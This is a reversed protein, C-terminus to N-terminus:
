DNKIENMRKIAEPEGKEVAKKLYKMGEEQKGQSILFEAYHLELLDVPVTEAEFALQFNSNAKDIENKALHYLAFNRYTYANDNNEAEMANHLQRKGEELQGSQILAYGLNDYVIGYDPDIQLAKHFNSISKEYEGKRTEYYGMNNYVDVLLLEDETLFLLKQLTSIASEFDNNQYEQYAQHFLDNAQLEAKSFSKSPSDKLFTMAREFQSRLEQPLENKWKPSDQEKLEAYTALGFAMIENPMESDYNWQTEWIGNDARGVDRLNQSLPVGFGLYIGAIYLFLGTDEGVDFELRHDMLRIKIFEYILSPVLRNPVKSISNAIHIKYTDGDIETETEFIKGEMEFPMGYTDRLDEHLEFQINEADLDMLKCLDEILNQVEFGESSFAKPFYHETVLVEESQKDLYGFAKILWKFNDEVWIRDTETIRFKKEKGKKNFRFIKM